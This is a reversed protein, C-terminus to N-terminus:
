SDRPSPSTYLLCTTNSGIRIAGVVFTGGSIVVEGGGFVACRDLAQQVAHTDKTAGDGKAGFDRPDLRLAPKAPTSVKPAASARGTAALAGLGAIALIARRNASM